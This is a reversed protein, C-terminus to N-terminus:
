HLYWLLMRFNFGVRHYDHFTTQEGSFMRMVYISEQVTLSDDSIFSGIVNM